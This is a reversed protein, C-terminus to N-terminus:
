FWCGCHCWMLLVRDDCSTIFIAILVWSNEGLIVYLKGLRLCADSFIGYKLANWLIIHRLVTQSKEQEKHGQFQCLWSSDLSEHHISAYYLRSLKRFYFFSVLNFFWWYLLLYLISFLTYIFYLIQSSNNWYKHYDNLM